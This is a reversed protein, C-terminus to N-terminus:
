IIREKGIAQLTILEMRYKENKKTKCNNIFIHQDDGDEDETESVTKRKNDGVRAEDEVVEIKKRQLFKILGDLAIDADENKMLEEAIEAPTVQVETMLEDIEPFWNHDNIGLYNSVLIRNLDDILAQKISPDMAIKDFTAPHDLKISGWPGGGDGINDSVGGFRELAYLKVVNNEEKWANSREMVYRLYSSVVKEMYKKHFSLAIVRKELKGNRSIEDTKESGMVWLLQVGEFVDVIKEAKNMTLSFNNEKASKSVQISNLSPNIKTRLYIISAEYLQNMSYGISGDITLTMRSGIRYLGGFKSLIM